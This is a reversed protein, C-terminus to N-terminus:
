GENCAREFIFDVSKLHRKIDFVADIKEDSLHSTIAPDSKVREQLDAGGEWCALAHKQVLAYADERVIGGDVLAVLLTGSYILGRTMELNETMRGEQVVLGDIVMKLRHLMFHSLVCSDPGIVREVSSHSIDREHWLAVNEMASLSYSRVIRALGTLNETLIPNKKHPMASSGKQGKGFPELAEGV